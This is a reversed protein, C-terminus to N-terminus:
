FSLRLGFRFQRETPIDTRTSTIQMFTGPTTVATGPNAFKTTNTFNFSEAKFQVDVKERVRFTRFMSLDCNFIGPGRLLNRGTTGFRVENVGAFATADYYYQGTGVKGYREVTSKVQDATQTNGPANLKSGDATVTFPAGTYDTLVGNLQWGGAIARAMRNSQLFPKGAGFPLEYVWGLTFAHTRDYGALARNRSFMPDWNFVLDTTWGDEDTMNIAKSFTYSTKILLGNAFSKNLSTQLSHYNASLFGNWMWTNATRGWQAVLARGSTGGNPGAANIEKDAFQNTTKTGVYGMSAVLQKPLQREIVFNWSQIYGRTLQGAYPSRNEVTGPLLTKGSTIDPTAIAPIGNALTDFYTYSNAATFTAAITAPYPGRLPRSVPLPDYTIGYGTRIVTKEGLRYALGARPALLKKSYGVGADNPNGAIGGITVLNTAPDWRELGRGDRSITPYIEWRVGLNLTLNRSV